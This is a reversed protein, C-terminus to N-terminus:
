HVSLIQVSQSTEVNASIGFWWLGGVRNIRNFPLRIYFTFKMCWFTQIHFQFLHKELDSPGINPKSKPCGNSCGFQFAQRARQFHIFCLNIRFSLANVEDATQSDKSNLAHGKLVHCCIGKVIKAKTGHQNPTLLMAAIQRVLCAASLLSCSETPPQKETSSGIKWDFSTQQKSM